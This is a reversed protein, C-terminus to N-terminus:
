VPAIYKMQTENRIQLYHYQQLHSDLGSRGKRRGSQMRSALKAKDTPVRKKGQVRGNQEESVLPELLAIVSRMLCCGGMPCRAIIFDAVSILVAKLDFCRPSGHRNLVALPVYSMSLMQGM